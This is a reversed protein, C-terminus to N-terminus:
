QAARKIHHKFLRTKGSRYDACLIIKTSRWLILHLAWAFAESLFCSIDAWQGWAYLCVHNNVMATGNHLMICIIGCSSFKMFLRAWELREYRCRVSLSSFVMVCVRLSHGEIVGEPCLWVDTRRIRRHLSAPNPVRKSTRPPPKATTMKRVVPKVLSKALGTLIGCGPRAIHCRPSPDRDLLHVTETGFRVHPRSQYSGEMARKPHPIKTVEPQRHDPERSSRSRKPDGKDTPSELGREVEHLTRAAAQRVTKQMPHREVNEPRTRPRAHTVQTRDLPIQRSSAAAPGCETRTSSRDTSLPPRESGSMNIKPREVAVALATSRTRPKSALEFNTETKAPVALTSSLTEGLRAERAMDDSPSAQQLLSPTQQLPITKTAPQDWSNHSPQHAQISKSKYAKWATMGPSKDLVQRTGRPSLKYQPISRSSSGLRKSESMKASVEKHYRHEHISQHKGESDTPTTIFPCKPTHFCRVLDTWHVSPLGDEESRSVPTISFNRIEESLRDLSSASSWTFSSDNPPTIGISKLHRYTQSVM